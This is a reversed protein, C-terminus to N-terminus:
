YVFLTSLLWKFFDDAHQNDDEESDFLLLQAENNDSSNSDEDIQTHFSVVGLNDITQNPVDERNLRNVIANNSHSLSPM